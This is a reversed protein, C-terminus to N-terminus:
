MRRCEEQLLPDICFSGAGILRHTVCSSTPLPIQPLLLVLCSGGAGNSKQRVELPEAARGKGEETKKRWVPAVCVRNGIKGHRNERRQDNEPLAECHFFVKRPYREYRFSPTRQRTLTFLMNSCVISLQQRKEVPLEAKIDCHCLYYCFYFVEYGAQLAPNIPVETMFLVATKTKASSEARDLGFKAM